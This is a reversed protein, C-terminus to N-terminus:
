GPHACRDLALAHRDAVHAAETGHAGELEDGLVAAILRIRAGGLCECGLAQLAAQEDDCGVVIRDPKMFDEIAAGEKLFEPNSVVAFEVDVGRADLAARVFGTGDSTSVPVAGHMGRRVVTDVFNVGAATHRAAMEAATQQQFLTVRAPDNIPVRAGGDPVAPKPASACATALMAAVLSALPAHVRRPTKNKAKM